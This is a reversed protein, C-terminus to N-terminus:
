ETGVQALLEECTRVLVEAADRVARTTAPHAARLQWRALQQGAAQRVEGIDANAGLGFRARPETGAAGLLEEAVQREDFTLSLMGSRLEDLLDIEALEHAESRVQELQYRLRITRDGGLPSSRVVADLVRLAAHARLTEARRIEGVRTMGPQLPEDLQTQVARLRGGEACGDYLEHAERAVARVRDLLSQEDPHVEAPAINEAPLPVSGEITTGVGPVSRILIKGGVATVRAAVNRLGRGDPGPGSGAGNTQSIFGPGKDCVTFRLTDQVVCVGVTVAAGPAHKRANNVAELCCFYVATEVEPPFRVDSLADPSTVVIPPHEGSLEANLAAVLGRESLLISSVGSATDALVTETTDIQTALQGLRDRAQDFQGCALEHEVLGLAMRLSVLHHQAGDHLNREITRRESDMESVAQRRSVAIEEAHALAARLQRELEIELRGLQLIAGLSDAIDELLHRRQTHLGALAARDVAISGIPEGGARIPLTVVEDTDAAVDGDVWSYTRDQMGPHIVTLRCTSAGLGRAIAEAVGALDPTEIATIQSRSTLDALVSYPTPRSGYLLRDVLREAHTYLPLFLLAVLATALVAATSPQGDTLRVAVDRVVVFTGGMLVVVLTTALGRSFLREATWLRNRRAAILLAVAIAASGLRSFWFLPASVPVDAFPRTLEATPDVVTLGPENLHRLLLTVICLVAFTCFAAALVSFLLRAQTRQEATTGQRIRRPLALLGVIPVVLGFVLVSSIAYPPLTTILGIAGFIGGYTIVVLHRRGGSNPAIDWRGAPFLLLALLYAACAVVHLLADHLGAISQGTATQVALEATDAQLNFAGASGILGLALLRIVWSRGDVCLLIVAITLNLVSFAYDLLAQGPPESRASAALIGRAWSSGDSAAAALTASMGSSHTAVAVIGGIALSGVAVVGCAAFLAWYAVTPIRESPRSIM